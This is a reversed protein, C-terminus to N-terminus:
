GSRCQISGRDTSCLLWRLRSTPITISTSHQEDRFEVGIDHVPTM